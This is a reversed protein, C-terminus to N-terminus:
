LELIPCHMGFFAPLPVLTKIGWPQGELRSL